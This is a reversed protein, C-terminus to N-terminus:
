AELYAVAYCYYSYMASMLDRTVDTSTAKYYMRHIYYFPSYTVTLGDVSITVEDCLRNPAIDSVEVFYMGTGNKNVSMDNSVIEGEVSASFTVNKIADDTATFYFRLTTQHDHILSAGYYKVNASSGTKKATLNETYPIDYESVSIGNDALDGLNYEFYNQAKGGYNLMAKVLNCLAVDDNNALIYDGYKRVSYLYKNGAASTTIIQIAIDETMQAAAVNTSVMYFGADNVPLESILTNTTVDDVTVSVYAAEDSIVSDSLNLCFDARIDGELVLGWSDVSSMGDNIQIEASVLASGFDTANDGNCQEAFVYITYKGSLGAPMNLNVTGSASNEAIHGYYVAKGNQNCIVVSVFENVGTAAGSYTIPLVWSDYGISQEIVSGNGITAAFSSHADDTITLKWANDNMESVATLSDAGVPGSVKGGVAASTMVIKDASINFAPRAGWTAAIHPYGVFGTDSVIGGYIDRDTYASRLWWGDNVGDVSAVLGEVSDAFYDEIEAASLFFLKEANLADKSWAAGFYNGAEEAKTTDMIGALEGASFTAAAYDANWVKADSNAWANDLGGKNFAINADLIGESLLALGQVGTTTLGNDLVIWSAGDKGYVITEGKQISSVGVGVSEGYTLVAEDGTASAAPVLALIMVVTIIMSLVRRFQNM